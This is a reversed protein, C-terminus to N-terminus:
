GRTSDKAYMRAVRGLNSTIRTTQWRIRSFTLSFNDERFRSFHVRIMMLLVSASGFAVQAPPVGCADKAINLTQILLDLATLAADRGRPRQSSAMTSPPTYTHDLLACPICAARCLGFGCVRDRIPPGPWERGDRSIVTSWHDICTLPMYKCSTRIALEVNSIHTAICPCLPANDVESM